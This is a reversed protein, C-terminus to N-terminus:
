NERADSRGVRWDPLADISRKAGGLVFGQRLQDLTESFQFLEPAEWLFSIVACALDEVSVLPNTPADDLIEALCVYHRYSWLNAEDMLSLILKVFAVPLGTFNSLFDPSRSATVAASIVVVGISSLTDGEYFGPPSLGLRTSQYFLNNIWALKDAITAM